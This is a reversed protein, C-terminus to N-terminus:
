KMLGYSERDIANIEYVSDSDYSESAGVLRRQGSDGLPTLSYLNSDGAVQVLSSTVFADLQAQPIVKINEWRLHGYSNFVSPSLILRKFQKGGRYKIIYVDPNDATKVIDGENLVIDRAKSSYVIVESVGGDQTRFKVYLTETTAGITKFKEPNFDQWSVGKFDPTRSIAIQYVNELVGSLNVEGDQSSSINVGSVDPKIPPVFAAGGVSLELTFSRSAALPQDYVFSIERSSNSVYGGFAAGDVKVTYRTSAAPVGWTINAGTANGSLVFTSVEGNILNDTNFSLNASGGAPAVKLANAHVPTKLTFNGPVPIATVTLDKGLIDLQDCLSGSAAFLDGSVMGEMNLITDATFQMKAAPVAGVFYSHGLVFALSLFIPFIPLITDPHLKLKPMSTIFHILKSYCAEAQAQRRLPLATGQGAQAILPHIDTHTLCAKGRRLSTM